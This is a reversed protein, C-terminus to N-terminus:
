VTIELRNGDPDLVCSEYYGDGTRRPVSIVPYGADRLEQTLSDVRQESGVSMALHTLGLPPGSVAEQRSSVDPLQMLELRAGSDFSVFYSCFGRSHNTYRDGARGGLHSTYFTRLAEIDNTWLAVHEIRM